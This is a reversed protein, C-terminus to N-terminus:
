LPADCIFESFLEIKRVDNRNFLFEQVDQGLHKFDFPKIHHLLQQRLSEPNAIGLKQQLYAYNPKTFSLLFIIDYFDRGKARKRGLAAAIKQSLLIDPPTM